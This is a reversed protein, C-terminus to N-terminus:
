IAKSIQLNSLNEKAYLYILTMKSLQPLGMLGAVYTPPLDHLINLLLEICITQDPNEMRPQNTPM